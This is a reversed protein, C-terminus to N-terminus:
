YSHRNPTNGIKGSGSAFFNFKHKELRMGPYIRIGVFLINIRVILIILELTYINLKIQIKTPRKFLIRTVFISRVTIALVLIIPIEFAIILNYLNM